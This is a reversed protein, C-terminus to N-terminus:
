ILFPMKVRPTTLRPPAPARGQPTKMAPTQLRAAAVRPTEFNRPTLARRSPKLPTESKAGPKVSSRCESETNLLELQGKFHTYSLATSAMSQDRTPVLCSMSPQPSGQSSGPRPFHGSLRLSKRVAKRIREPDEKPRWTKGKRSSSTLPTPNGSMLKPQKRSSPTTPTPTAGRKRKGTSDKSASRAGFRSEVASEQDRLKKRAQKEHEKNEEREKWQNKIVESLVQGDLMFPAKHKKEYVKLYDLLNKEIKPLDKQIKKREREEQLLKGGRNGFLRNKDHTCNEIYLMRDWLNQREQVLQFIDINSQHFYKLKQVELEHLELLDETYCDSHYPIFSLKQQESLHCKQWWEELDRRAYEVFKKINQRKIEELRTLESKLKDVTSMGCGRVSSLFKERYEIGQSLRDWLETLKTRLELVLAQREQLDKSLRQHLNELERMNADSFVFSGDDNVVSKEFQLSPSWELEKVLTIIDLRRKKFVSELQAMEQKQDNLYQEFDDLEQQTPVRDAFHVPDIALSKCIIKEKEKLEALRNLIARKIQRHEEITSRLAKEMRNLPLNEYSTTPIDCRLEKSLSTIEKLAEEVKSILINKLGTEEKVMDKLLLKVHNVVVGRRKECTGEDYGCDTWIRHLEEYCDGVCRSVEDQHEWWPKESM